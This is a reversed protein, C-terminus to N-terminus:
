TGLQYITKGILNFRDCVNYLSESHGIYLYGKPTLMEAFRHFLKSQTERDFYIVVNRCFIADFRTHVPWREHLNLPDFTIPKKIAGDMVVDGNGEAHMYQRYHAPIENAAAPPYVGRRAHDLVHTDLDTAWIKFSEKAGDNLAHFLTMAISYPEQGTSCGASWFRMPRNGEEKRRQLADPLATKALHEFHHRERFFSTLNTTIANILEQIEGKGEPHRIFDVYEAFSGLKYFRVRRVLRSYVMARKEPTLVIKALDYVLAAIIKFDDDSLLFEQGLLPFTATHNNEEAMEKQIIFSAPPIPYVREYASEKILVSSHAGTM